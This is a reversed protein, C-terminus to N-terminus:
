KIYEIVTRDGAPDGWDIGRVYTDLYDKRLQESERFSLRFASLPVGKFPNIIVPANLYDPAKVTGFPRMPPVPVYKLQILNKKM